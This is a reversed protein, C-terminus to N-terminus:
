NYGAQQSPQLKLILISTASPLTYHKAVKRLIM